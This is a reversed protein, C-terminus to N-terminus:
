AGGERKAYEEEMREEYLRDAAKQAESAEKGQAESGPNGKLAGNDPINTNSPTTSSTSNSTSSKESPTLPLPMKDLIYFHHALTITPPLHIISTTNIRLSPQYIRLPSTCSPSIFDKM